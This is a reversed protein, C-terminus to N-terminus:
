KEAENEAEESRTSQKGAEPKEPNNIAELEEVQGEPYNTIVLKVPNM